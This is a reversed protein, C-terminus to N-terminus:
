FPILFNSPYIFCISMGNSLAKKLNLRRVGVAATQPKSHIRFAHTSTKTFGDAIDSVPSLPREDTFPTTAMTRATEWAKIPVAKMQNRSMKPNYAPYIRIIPEQRPFRASIPAKYQQSMAKQSNKKAKNIITPDEQNKAMDQKHKEYLEESEKKVKELRKKLRFNEDKVDM